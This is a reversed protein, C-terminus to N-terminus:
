GKKMLSFPAIVNLSFVGRRLQGTVIRREVDLRKLGKDGTSKKEIQSRERRRRSFESAVGKGNVRDLMPCIV